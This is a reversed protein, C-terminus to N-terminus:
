MLEVDSDSGDILDIGDFAEMDGGDDEGDM